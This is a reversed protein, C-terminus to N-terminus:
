PSKMRSFYDPNYQRQLAHAGLTKTMEIDKDCQMRLGALGVGGSQPREPVFQGDVPIRPTPEMASDLRAYTVDIVNGLGEEFLVPLAHFRLTDRALTLTLTYHGIRKDALSDIDKIWELAASEGSIRGVYLSHGLLTGGSYTSKVACAWEKRELLYLREDFGGGSAGFDGTFRWWSENAPERGFVAILIVAIALVLLTLPDRLTM